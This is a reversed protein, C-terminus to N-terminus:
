GEGCTIGRGMTAVYKEINEKSKFPGCIIDFKSHIEKNTGKESEFIIPKVNEKLGVYLKM